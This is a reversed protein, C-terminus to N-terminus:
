GTNRGHRCLEYIDSHVNFEGTTTAKHVEEGDSGPWRDGEPPQAATIVGALLKTESNKDDGETMEQERNERQESM